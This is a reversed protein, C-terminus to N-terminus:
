YMTSVSRIVVVCTLPETPSPDQEYHFMPKGFYEEPRM